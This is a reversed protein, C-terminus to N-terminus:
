IIWDATDEEPAEIGPLPVDDPTPIALIVTVGAQRMLRAVEGARRALGAEDDGALDSCIGGRLAAESLIFSQRGADRLRRELAQARALRVEASSGSVRFVGEDRPIRAASAAPFDTVMGAAVTANTIKDILVFGGLQRNRAYPVAAIRRDLDIEVTAIDNLGLAGGRTGGLGDVDLPAGVKSVSASVTQAGLRLWYARHPVLRDEAMWVLQAELASTVALAEAAAIVDGRSCDVEDALTLTVAQGAVAEDLPGSCTLIGAVKSTRGSPAIAIRDGIRVRGSAVTGAYGRFDQGFRNVWQVTMRFPELAAHSAEVPLSELHDLLAPGGYWAMADSRRTINDGLRASVPIAEFVEIGATRAFDRYDAVIEQFRARSYGVLDMKNVALVIHRIGLLHAIHSHRRTQPLVGKRADILIIALDATSAGTAMNRTYQEHGPTDAIIFKRKDTAFFRYAVDITIGQEREAALGDVLSAFDLEGPAANASAPAQELAALQDEFLMRSDYLLRGILTSKGDDVSGCTLLRLLSKRQSAAVYADVAARAAEAPTEFVPAASAM